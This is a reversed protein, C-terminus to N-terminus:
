TNDDMLNLYTDLIAQATKSTFSDFDKDRRKENDYGLKSNTTCEEFQIFVQIHDGNEDDSMKMIVVDHNELEIIRTFGKM